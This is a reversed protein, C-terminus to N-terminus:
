AFNDGIWRRIDGINSNLVDYERRRSFVVQRTKKWTQAFRGFKFLRGDVMELVLRGGLFDIGYFSFGITYSIQRQDEDYDLGVMKRVNPHWETCWGNTFVSVRRGDADSFELCSEESAADTAM